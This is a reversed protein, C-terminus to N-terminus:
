YNIEVVKGEKIVVQVDTDEARTLSDRTRKKFHWYRFENDESTADPRGVAALVEDDSKNLVRRSFEERSYVPSLPAVAPPPRRARVIFSAGVALGLGFLTGLTFAFAVLASRSSAFAPM